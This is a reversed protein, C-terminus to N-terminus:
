MFLMLMNGNTAPAPNTYVIVAKVYDINFTKGGEYGAICEIGVRFSANDIHTQNLSTPVITVVTDTTPGATNTGPSGWNSGDIVPQVNFTYTDAGSGTMKFQATITVSTITAGVEIVTDFNFGYLNGYYNDGLGPTGTAYTGNDAYVETPSTLASKSSWTEYSSAYLTSTAM